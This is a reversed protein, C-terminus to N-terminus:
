PVDVRRVEELGDTEASPTPDLTAVLSGDTGTGDSATLRVSWVVRAAPAAGDDSSAPDVVVAVEAAVDDAAVEVTGGVPVEVQEEGTLSGDAAVGRLRVPVVGSPDVDPSRDAPVASLVVTAGQAVAPLGVQGADVPGAPLSRGANWAVDYPTGDVVSDEPQEGPLAFRAAGVVPVDADVVVTYTGPELGGLPVSTVAGVALDVVEAGRLTVRGEPGYVSVRAVGPRGDPALLWLAAAQPADPAEGRGVVGSAVMVRAPPDGPELLDVGTPVLGDIGQTQWSATVRAGTARVHVALRRQEPALSDLRLVEQEGPAVTFAGQGGISVPGNPGYVELSVAAPEVSPNQVTLLATRGVESGGGVLWHDTAPARCSAAALGRLDGAATSGALAAAVRLPAGARPEARLVRVGRVQESLVDVAPGATIGRARTGDLRALLPTGAAGEVAAAVASRSEVPAAGFQDDGVDSGAPLRVPRPCVAVSTPPRVEVQRTAAAVAVEDAATWRQTWQEGVAATAVLAAAVLTGSVVLGARRLTPAARM